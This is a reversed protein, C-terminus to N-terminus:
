FLESADKLVPILTCRCNPHLGPWTTDSYDLRLIWGRSWMMANWKDFFNTELEVIKGHMVGCYQCTREDLACWRQKGKVVDSDKWAQIQWETAGRVSETRVITALRSEKLDVFVEGIAEKVEETTLWQSVSATIIASIKEDTVSDVQEALQTIQERAIKRKEAAAVSFTVGSTVEDMAIQWEEKMFNLLPNVLLSIYLNRYRNWLKVTSKVNKKDELQKM